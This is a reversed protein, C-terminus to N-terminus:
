SAKAQSRAAEIRARTDPSLVAEACCDAELSLAAELRDRCADAFARKYNRRAMEPLAVLRAAVARAVADLEDDAVPAGTLGLRHLDSARLRAELWLVDNAVHPGCADRLLVTMGGTPFLGWSAEPCFLTATESVVLVDANLPWSAGGGVMWGRAACVVPKDGLMMHRTVDQLMALTTKVDEPAPSGEVFETLDDGACFARGAAKLLIVDVDPDGLARRLAADLGSILDRSIANLRHPRNLTVEAIRDATAYLVPPTQLADDSM